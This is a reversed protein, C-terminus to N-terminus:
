RHEIDGPQRNALQNQETPSELISVKYNVSNRFFWSGQLTKLPTNNATQPFLKENHYVPLVQDEVQKANAVFSAIESQRQEYDM